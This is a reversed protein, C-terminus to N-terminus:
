AAVSGEEPIPELVRSRSCTKCRRWPRGTPSLSWLVNDGVLAHGRKCRDQHHLLVHPSHGRLANELPTVAELHEPNVCGRNRCLHDIVLGDPIPGVCLEYAVRHAKLPVGGARGAQILGYGAPNKTGVWEWCGNDSSTKDVKPWFREPLPKPPRHGRKWKQPEGKVTGTKKLTQKAPNTRQGCGCHCYGYPIEGDTTGASPRVTNQESM